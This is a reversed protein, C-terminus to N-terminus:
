CQNIKDRALLILDHEDSSLGWIPKGQYELRNLCDLFEKNAVLHKISGRLEVSRNTVENNNEEKDKQLLHELLQLEEMIMKVHDVDSALAIMQSRQQDTISSTTTTGSPPLRARAGGSGYFGGQGKIAQGGSYTIGSKVDNVVSLWRLLSTRGDGVTRNSKLSLSHVAKAPRSSILLPSFSRIRSLIM